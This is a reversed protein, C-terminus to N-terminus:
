VVSTFYSAPDKVGAALKALDDQTFASGKFLAQLDMVFQPGKTIVLTVLTIIVDIGM